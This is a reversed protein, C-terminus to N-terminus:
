RNATPALHPYLDARLRAVTAPVPDRFYRSRGEGYRYRAMDVTSRYRTDDDFGDALAQCEDATLLPSPTVAYGQEDLDHVIAKWDMSDMSSM